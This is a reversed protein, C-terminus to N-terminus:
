RPPLKLSVIEAGTRFAYSVLLPGRYCRDCGYSGFTFGKKGHLMFQRPMYLYRGTGWQGPHFATILYHQAPVMGRLWEPYSDEVDAEHIYLQGPFFRYIEDFRSETKSLNLKPCNGSGPTSLIFEAEVVEGDHRKAFTFIKDIESLADAYAAEPIEYWNTCDIKISVSPRAFAELLSPASIKVDLFQLIAAISAIIAIAAAAINFFKRAYPPM